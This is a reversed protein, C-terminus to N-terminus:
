DTQRDTKIRIFGAQMAADCVNNVGRVGGHRREQVTLNRVIRDRVRDRSEDAGGDARSLLQRRAANPLREFGFERAIQPRPLIQNHAGDLCRELEFNAVFIRVVTGHIIICETPSWAFNIAVFRNTVVFGVIRQELSRSVKQVRVAIAWESTVFAIISTCVAAMESCVLAGMGTLTREGAVLATMTTCCAATENYVLAGMGTLTREGAVFATISARLPAIESSVLTRM